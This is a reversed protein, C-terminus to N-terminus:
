GWFACIPDREIEALLDGIRRTSTLLPYREWRGTHRHCYLTWLRTAGVYRLRAIPLRTREPGYDERWPPRREVITVAQRSEELEVLVQGRAHDPVRAACLERVRAVDARPLVGRLTSM